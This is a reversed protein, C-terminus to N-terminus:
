YDNGTMHGDTVAVAYRDLAGLRYPLISSPSPNM